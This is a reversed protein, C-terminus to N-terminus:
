RNEYWYVEGTTREQQHEDDVKTLINRRRFTWYMDGLFMDIM